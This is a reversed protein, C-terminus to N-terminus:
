QKEYFTRIAPFAQKLYAHLEQASGALKLGEETRLGKDVALKEVAQAFRVQEAPALKSYNMRGAFAHMAAYRIGPDERADEVLPIAYSGFQPDERALARLANLRVEEPARPSRALEVIGPRSEPDVALARAAKAQVHPDAHQLYPRLTGIHNVSGDFDLLDIADALPIPVNQGERLSEALLNIAMLDHNSVASRYAYLRVKDRKDGLLTRLVSQIRQRDKAPPIFTVRRSLDEILGADMEESGDRPDGLIKLVAGLYKDDYQLRKLAELRIADSQSRDTGLALLAPFTADDPYGLDKLAELREEQTRSRDLFTATAARKAERYAEPDELRTQAHLRDAPALCAAMAAIVVCLLVRSLRRFKRHTRM